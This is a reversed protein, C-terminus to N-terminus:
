VIRPSVWDEIRQLLTPNGLMGVHDGVVGFQDSLFGAPGAPLASWFPVTGDGEGFVHGSRHRDNLTIGVTTGLSGSQMYGHGYSFRYEIAAPRRFRDLVAHLATGAALGTSDIEPYAQGISAKLSSPTRVCGITPPPLLQHGAPYLAPQSGLIGMASGPFLLGSIGEQGLLRFLALPAGLHPVAICVLQRIRAFWPEVDYKGCELMFRAVLGGMSHAVIIVPSSDLAAITQALINATERIDVRWDYPFRVLNTAPLHELFNTIPGYEPVDVSPFVLINELIAGPYTTPELLEYARSEVDILTNQGLPPWLETGDGRVMRTGFIGPLFVIHQM